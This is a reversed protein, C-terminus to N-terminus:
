TIKRLSIQNTLELFSSYHYYSWLYYTKNM